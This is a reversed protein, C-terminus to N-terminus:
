EGTGCACICTAAEHWGDVCRAGNACPNAAICLDTNSWVKDSWFRIGYETNVRMAYPKGGSYTESQTGTCFGGVSANAFSAQDWGAFDKIGNNFSNRSILRYDVYLSVEWTVGPVTMDITVIVSVDGAEM